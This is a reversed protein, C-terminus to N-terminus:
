KFCAADHICQERKLKEVREKVDDWMERQRACM